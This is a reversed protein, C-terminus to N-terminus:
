PHGQRVAKRFGLAERDPLSLQGLLLLIISFCSFSFRFAIGNLNKEYKQM